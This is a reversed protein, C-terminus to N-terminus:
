HSSCPFRLVLSSVQAEYYQRMFTKYSASFGSTSGSFGTCSGVRTSGSFSGDYRAGVGRGNLYKACDTSATTWEGVITWLTTFSTLRSAQACASQELCLTLM